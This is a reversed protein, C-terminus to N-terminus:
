RYHALPQHALQQQHYAGEHDLPGLPHGYPLGAPHYPEPHPPEALVPAAPGHHLVPAVPGHHLVPPAHVVSKTYIPAAQAVMPIPVIRKVQVPVPRPVEVPYPRPVEYPEPVTYPEPVPVGKYIPAPVQVLHNVHSGYNSQTIPAYLTQYHKATLVTAPLYHPEPEPEPIAKVTAILAAIILFKM